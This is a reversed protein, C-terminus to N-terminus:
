PIYSVIILFRGDLSDSNLKIFYIVMSLSAPLHLTTTDAEYKFSPLHKIFTIRHDDPFKGQMNYCLRVSFKYPFWSPKKEQYDM